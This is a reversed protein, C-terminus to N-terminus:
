EKKGINLCLLNRADRMILFKGAIAMPGWAETGNLIKHSALPVVKNKQM